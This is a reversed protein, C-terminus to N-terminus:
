PAEAAADAAAILRHIEAATPAALIAERLPQSRFVRSIRALAKLHAGAGGEPALLVFFLRVPQKDIAGFEIGSPARGFSAMLGPLNWIKAHPIAFGGGIGTSGLKERDSLAVSLRAPDSAGSMPKCLEILVEGSTRGALDPLVAESPLFDVLRM